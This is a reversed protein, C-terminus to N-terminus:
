IRVLVLVLDSAKLAMTTTEFLLLFVEPLPPLRHFLFLFSHDGTGKFISFIGVAFFCGALEKVLTAM